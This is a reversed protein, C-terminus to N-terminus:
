YDGLPGFDPMKTFVIDSVKQRVTMPLSEPSLNYEISSDPFHERTQQRPLRRPAIDFHSAFQGSAGSISFSMNFMQGVAFGANRFYEQVQQVALPETTNLLVQASIQHHEPGAM